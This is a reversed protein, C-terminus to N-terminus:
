EPLPPLPSTLHSPLELGKLTGVSGAEGKETNLLVLFSTTESCLM